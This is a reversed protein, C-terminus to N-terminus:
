AHRTFHYFPVGSPPVYPNSTDIVFGLRRLYRHSTDARSDVLNMLVPFRAHMNVIASRSLKMFLIPHAAIADTGLLWPCGAGPVSPIESAGLLAAPTGDDLRMCATWGPLALGQSLAHLPSLGFAEVEWVDSMRMNEAVHAVDGPLVPTLKM